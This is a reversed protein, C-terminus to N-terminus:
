EVGVREFKKGLTYSTFISMAIFTSMSFDLNPNSYMNDVVDNFSLIEHGSIQEDGETHDTTIDNIVDDYNLVVRVFANSEDTMGPSAYSREKILKVDDPKVTIGTEEYIERVATSIIDEGDDILGAPVGITTRGLPTRFEDNLLLYFEGDKELIIVCSVADAVDHGINNVALRDKNKRSAMFYHKGDNEIDFLSLFKTEHLVNVM